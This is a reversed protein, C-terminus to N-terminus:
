VLHHIPSSCPTLHKYTGNKKVKMSLNVNVEDSVDCQEKFLIIFADRAIINNWIESKLSSQNRIMESLLKFHWSIGSCDVLTHFDKQTFLCTDNPSNLQSLLLVSGHQVDPLFVALSEKLSKASAESRHDNVHNRFISSWESNLKSVQKLYDTEKTLWMLETPYKSSSIEPLLFNQM